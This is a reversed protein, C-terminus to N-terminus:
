AKRPAPSPRATPRKLSLEPIRACCSATFEELKGDPGFVFSSGDRESFYEGVRPAPPKGIGVPIAKGDKDRQVLTHPFCLTPDFRRSLSVETNEM